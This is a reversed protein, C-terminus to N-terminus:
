VIRSGGMTKLLALMNQNQWDNMLGQTGIGMGMGGIQGLVNGWAATQGPMGAAQGLMQMKQAREQGRINILDTPSPGLLSTVDMPKAWPFASSAQMMSQIGFRKGEESTKGLDRWTLARHLPTGTGFGRGLATGATARMVAQTVDPSLVGSMYDGISGMAQKVGAGYGPMATELMQALQAANIAGVDGALASAGPIAKTMATLSESTLASTDIGPENAAQIMRKRAIDASNGSFLGGLGGLFTGGLLPILPSM